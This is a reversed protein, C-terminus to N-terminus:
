HTHQQDRPGLQLAVLGYDLNANQYPRARHRTAYCGAHVHLAAGVKAAEALSAALIATVAVLCLVTPSRAMIVAKGRQLLGVSVCRSIM